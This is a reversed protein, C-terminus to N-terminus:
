NNNNDNCRDFDNSEVYFDLSNEYLGYIQANIEEFNDDTISYAIPGCLAMHNNDPYTMESLLFVERIDLVEYTLTVESFQQFNLNLCPNVYTM